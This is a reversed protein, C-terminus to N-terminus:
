EKKDGKFFITLDVSHIAIGGQWEHRVGKYIEAVINDYYEIEEGEEAEIEVEFRVPVKVIKM